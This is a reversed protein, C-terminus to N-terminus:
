FRSIVYSACRCVWEVADDFDVSSISRLSQQVREESFGMRRLVGYTIALRQLAKDEPEDLPLKENPIHADCVLQLVRDIFPTDLNLNQMTKSFRREQEIAKVTRGIERETRDQYKEIIKQLVQEAEDLGQGVVSPADAPNNSQSEPTYIEEANDSNTASDTPEVAKKPVSTTAFGRAVPKLQTKKKKAM